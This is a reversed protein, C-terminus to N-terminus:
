TRLIVAVTLVFVVVGTATDIKRVAWVAVIFRALQQLAEPGSM